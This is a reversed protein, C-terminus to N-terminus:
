EGKTQQMESIFESYKYVLAETDDRAAELKSCVTSVFEMEPKIMLFANSFIGALAEYRTDTFVTISSLEM